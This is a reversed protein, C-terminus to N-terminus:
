MLLCLINASRSVRSGEYDNATIIWIVCQINTDVTLLHSSPQKPIDSFYLLTSSQSKIYQVSM